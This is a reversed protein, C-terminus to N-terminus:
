IYVIKLSWSIIFLMCYLKVILKIIVKSLSNILFLFKLILKYYCTFFLLKSLEIFIGDINVSNDRICLQYRTIM